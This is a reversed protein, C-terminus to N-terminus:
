VNKILFTQLRQRDTFSNIEGKNKLSNQNTNYKVVEQSGSDSYFDVM